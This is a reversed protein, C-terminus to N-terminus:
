KSAGTAPLTVSFSGDANRGVQPVTVNVAKPIPMVFDASGPKVTETLVLGSVCSLGNLQLPDPMVASAYSILAASTTAGILVPLSQSGALAVSNLSSKWASSLGAWGSAIAALEVAAISGRIIKSRKTNGQAQAIVQLAVVPPLVTLGNTLKLQQRIIGLPVTLNASSTSCVTTAAVGYQSSLPGFLARADQQSLLEGTIHLSPEQAKASGALWLILGIIIANPIYKM